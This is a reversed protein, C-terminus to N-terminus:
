NTFIVVNEEENRKGVGVGDGNTHAIGNQQHSSKTLVVKQLSLLKQKDLYEGAAKVFGYFIPSPKTPHSLFEPHYQV